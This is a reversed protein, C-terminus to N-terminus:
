RGWDTELHSHFDSPIIAKINGSVIALLYCNTFVAAFSLFELCNQWAGISSSFVSLLSYSYCICQSLITYYTGYQSRPVALNASSPLTM